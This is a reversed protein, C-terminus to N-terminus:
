FYSEMTNFDNLDRSGYEMEIKKQIVMSSCFRIDFYKLHNNKFAFCKFINQVYLTTISSVNFMFLVINHKM